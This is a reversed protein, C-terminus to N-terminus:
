KFSIIRELSSEPYKVGTLYYWQENNSMLIDIAEYLSEKTVQQIKNELQFMFDTSNSLTLGQIMLFVKEKSTSTNAYLSNILKNKYNELKEEVPILIFENNNEPAELKSSITNKSKLIEKAQKIGEFFKEKNSIRYGLTTFFPKNCLNINTGVSYCSGNQERVINHLLDSYMLIALYSSVFSNDTAEPLNSYSIAYDILKNENKNFEVLSSDFQYIFKQHNKNETLKIKGFSKELEKLFIKTEFKGSCLIYISNKTFLSQYFNELDKKTIKNISELTLNNKGLFNTKNRLDNNALETLLNLDKKSINELSFKKGSIENEFNSFEPNLIADKFVPFVVSFYKTLSTMTISSFVSSATYDLTALKSDLLKTKNEFSFHKSESTMMDLTLNSLGSKDNELTSAGTEFYISITNMKSNPNNNIVVKIGNSLKTNITNKKYNQYFVSENIENNKSKSNSTTVCSSLLNLIMIFFLIQMSFFLKTKM